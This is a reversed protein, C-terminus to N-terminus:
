TQSWRTTWLLQVRRALLFRSFRVLSQTVEINKLRTRCLSSFLTSSPVWIGAGPDGIAASDADQGISYHQDNRYGRLGSCRTRVPFVRLQSRSRRSRRYRPQVTLSLTSTQLWNRRFYAADSYLLFSAMGVRYWM